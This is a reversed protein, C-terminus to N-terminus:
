VAEVSMIVPMGSSAAPTTSTTGLAFVTVTDTDPSSYMLDLSYSSGPTLGTVLFRATVPQVNGDGLFVAANSLLPTVTGHAAVAFALHDGGTGVSAGFSATVLVNGSAPATFSGTNINTSDVASMTASTTAPSARVGPAYRTPSCLFRGSVPLNAVTTAKDSGGSGAPATSNDDVDVFPLLDNSAPVAATLQSIKYNTM